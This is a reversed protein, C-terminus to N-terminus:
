ALVGVVSNLTEGETIRLGDISRKPIGHKALDVNIERGGGHVVVLSERAALETLTRAMRRVSLAEEILEGGLKVVIPRRSWPKTKANM